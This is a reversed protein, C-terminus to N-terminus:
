RVFALYVAGSLGASGSPVITRTVFRSFRGYVRFGGTLYAWIALAAAIAARAGTRLRRRAFGSIGGKNASSGALLFGLGFAVGCFGIACAALWLLACRTVSMTRQFIM